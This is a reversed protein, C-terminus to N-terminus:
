FMHTTHKESRFLFLVFYALVIDTKVIQNTSTKGRKKQTKTRKEQEDREDEDGGCGGLIRGWWDNGHNNISM